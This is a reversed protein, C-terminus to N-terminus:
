TQAPVYASSTLRPVACPPTEIMPPKSQVHVALAFAVGVIPADGFGSRMSLAVGPMERAYRAKVAVSAVSPPELMAANTM